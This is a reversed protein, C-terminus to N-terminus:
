LIDDNDIAEIEEYASFRPDDSIIGDVDGQITQYTCIVINNSNCYEKDEPTTIEKILM